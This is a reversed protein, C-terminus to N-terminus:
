IAFKIVLFGGFLLVLSVTAVLGLRREIFDRIQKGFVYLLAAIAFFVLGRSAISAIMFVLFNMGVIGSAITIVKYPFPTVGAGFVIWTGYDKYAEAFAAFKDAYGYLEFLPKMILEYLVSAGILYGFAGGLVSGLTCVTAFKWAKDREALVMPILMAHPPIPLFSSEAFAVAFLVPVANRHRALEMVWDYLRRIM